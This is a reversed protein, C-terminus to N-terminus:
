WKLFKFFLFDGHNKHIKHQFFSMETHIALVKQHFNKKIWYEEYEGIKENNYVSFLMFLLEAIFSAVLFYKCSKIMM